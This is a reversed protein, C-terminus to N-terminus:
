KMWLAVVRIGGKFTDFGCPDLKLWIMHFLRSDIILVNYIFYWRDMYNQTTQQGQVTYIGALRKSVILFLDSGNLL